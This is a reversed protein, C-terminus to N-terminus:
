AQLQLEKNKDVFLGNVRKRASAVRSRVKDKKRSMTFQGGVLKPDVRIGQDLMYLMRKCRKQRQLLIRKAQKYNVFVPKEGPFRGPILVKCSM